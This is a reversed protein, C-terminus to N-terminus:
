PRCTKDQDVGFGAGGLGDLGGSLRWSFVKM